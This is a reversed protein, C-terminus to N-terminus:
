KATQIEIDTRPRPGCIAQGAAHILAAPTAIEASSCAVGSERQCAGRGGAELPTASMARRAREAISLALGTECSPLIILVGGYRRIFRLQAARLLQDAPQRFAQTAPTRLLKTTSTRFHDSRRRCDRTARAGRACERDLQELIM